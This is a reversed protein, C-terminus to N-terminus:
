NKFGIAIVITKPKNDDVNKTKTRIGLKFWSYSRLKREFTITSILFSKNIQETYYNFLFSYSFNTLQNDNLIPSYVIKLEPKLIPSDLSSSVGLKKLDGDSIEKESLRFYNSDYGFGIKAKFVIPVRFRNMISQSFMFSSIFILFIIKRAM